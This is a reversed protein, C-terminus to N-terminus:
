RPGLFGFPFRPSKPRTKPVEGRVKVRSRVRVGPETIPSPASPEIEEVESGSLMPTHTRDPTRASLSVMVSAGVGRRANFTVPCTTSQGPELRTRVPKGIRFDPSSGSVSLGDLPFDGSNTIRIQGSARGGQPATLLPAVGSLSAKGPIVEYITRWPYSSGTSPAANEPGVEEASDIPAGPEVVFRGPRLLFFPFDPITVSGSGSIPGSIEYGGRVSNGFLAWSAINGGGGGFYFVVGQIPSSVKSTGSPGGTENGSLSLGSPMPLYYSGFETLAAKMAPSVPPTSEPINFNTALGYTTGAFPSEGRLSFTTGNATERVTVTLDEASLEPLAPASLTLFAVLRLLPRATMFFPSRNKNM